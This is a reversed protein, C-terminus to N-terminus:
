WTCNNPLYIIPVLRYFVKRNWSIFSSGIQNPICKTVAKSTFRWHNFRIEFRQQHGRHPWPSGMHGGSRSQRPRKAKIENAQTALYWFGHLHEKPRFRSFRITCWRFILQFLQQSCGLFSLWSTWKPPYQPNVWPRLVNVMAQSHNTRFICGLTTMKLRFIHLFRCKSTIAVYNM